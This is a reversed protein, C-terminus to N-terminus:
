RTALTAIKALIALAEGTAGSPPRRAEWFVAAEIHIVLIEIASCMVYKLM